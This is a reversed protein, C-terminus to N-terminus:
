FGAAYSGAEKASDIRQQVTVTLKIYPEACVITELTAGLDVQWCKAIALEEKRSADDILIICGPGLRSRMVPVLGFRGGRTSGPPGDCLVLSFSEPMSVLPPDYWSFDGYDRLPKTCLVVSDIKYEDLHKQVRAAWEPSHELAWHEIGRSKAIAGILITSLGSGCELIPRKALLAHEICGALYGEQASWSENGWGYVLDNVLSSAPQASTEIQKLFRRM